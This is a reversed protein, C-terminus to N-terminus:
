PCGPTSAAPPMVSLPSNCPTIVIRLTSRDRREARRARGTRCFGSLQLQHGPRNAISVRGHTRGRSFGRALPRHTGAARAGRRQRDPWRPRLRLSGCRPAPDCPGPRDGAACDAALSCTTAPSSRRGSVLSGLIRRRLSRAPSSTDRCRRAFVGAVLPVPSGAMVLPPGTRGYAGDLVGAAIGLIWARRDDDLCYVLRRPAAGPDPIRRRRVLAGKVLSESANRLLVLLGLLIGVLTRLVLRMASQPARRALRHSWSRRSPSRSSKASSPAAVKVPLVLALLPVAILAEGFGFASRILTAVFFVAVVAVTM